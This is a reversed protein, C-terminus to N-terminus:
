RLMALPILLAMGPEILSSCARFGPGHETRVWCDHCAGMLCFGARLDPAEFSADFESRRLHERQTLVATLVTDGVMATCAEGNIFFDVGPRQTAAVRHLLAM